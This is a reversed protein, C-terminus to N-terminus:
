LAFSAFFPESNGFVSALGSTFGFSLLNNLIPLVITEDTKSESFAEKFVTQELGDRASEAANYYNSRMFKGFM